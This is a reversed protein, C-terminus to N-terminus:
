REKKTSTPIGKPPGTSTPGWPYDTRRRGNAGQLLEGEGYSVGTEKKGTVGPANLQREPGRTSSPAPIKNHSLRGRQEKPRIKRGPKRKERLKPARANGGRAKVGVGSV